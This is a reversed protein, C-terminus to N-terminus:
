RRAAAIIPLLLTEVGSAMIQVGLCLLILAFLRTIARSATQGVIRGISDAYSFLVWITIALVLCALSLSLLYPWATGTAPRSAGLTIAVSITGPGITFPTSIPFLAIDDVTEAAATRGEQHAQLTKEAERREPANLLRWGGVAIVLGGAVKLAGLTIGFFSLVYSGVWLSFLLLILSYVGVRRALRLREPHTRDATIQNFIIANLIPNAISFLASFALLFTSFTGAFPGLLASRLM